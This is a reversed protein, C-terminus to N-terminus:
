VGKTKANLIAKCERPNGTNVIIITGNEQSFFCHQNFVKRYELAFEQAVAEYAQEMSIMM